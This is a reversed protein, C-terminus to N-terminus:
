RGIIIRKVHRWNIHSLLQRKIIATTLSTKVGSFKKLTLGNGWHLLESNSFTLVVGALSARLHLRMEPTLPPVNTYYPWVHYIHSFLSAAGSLAFKSHRTPPTTRNNATGTWYAAHQTHRIREQAAPPGDARLRARTCSTTRSQFHANAQLTLRGGQFFDLASFITRM